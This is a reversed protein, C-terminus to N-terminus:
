TLNRQGSFMEPTEFCEGLDSLYIPVVSLTFGKHLSTLYCLSHTLLWQLVPWNALLSFMLVM